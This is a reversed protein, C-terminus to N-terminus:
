HIIFAWHADRVEEAKALLKPAGIEGGRIEASYLCDSVRYYVVGNEVLLVESDAQNTTIPYMKESDVDYLNLRGPFVGIVASPPAPHYVTAGPASLQYERFLEALDPGMASRGKRWGERGVSRPNRPSNPQVETIGIFRGFGRVMCFESPAPLIRWTKDSKRFLLIRRRNETSALKLVVVHSDSIVLATFGDVGKCLEAPVEYDFDITRGVWTGVVGAAPLRAIAVIPGDAPVLDAVGAEGHAVAYRIDSADVTAFSKECPVAPDLTMGLVVPVKPRLAFSTGEYAPGLTPSNTLWAEIGGMGPSRQGGCKKVVAAKDFDIVTLTGGNEYSDILAKRWDYSVTILETWVDKPVLEAVSKVTGDNEVRLLVSVFPEGGQRNPAGTILYVQAQAAGVLAASLLLISSFFGPLSM